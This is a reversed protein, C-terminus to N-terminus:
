QFGLVRLGLLSGALLPDYQIFAWHVLVFVFVVLVSRGDLGCGNVDNGDGFLWLKIIVSRNVVTV